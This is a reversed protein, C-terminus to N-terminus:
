PMVLVAFEIDAHAGAIYVYNDAQKYGSTPIQGAALYEGGGLVYEIKGNTKQITVKRDLLPSDSNTNRALLFEKGTSAFQNGNTPDADTWTFEV